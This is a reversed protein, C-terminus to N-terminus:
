SRVEPRHIRLAVVPTLRQYRGWRRRNRRETGIHGLSARPSDLEIQDFGCYWEFRGGVYLHSEVFADGELCGDHGLQPCHGARVPHEDVLGCGGPQLDFSRRRYPFPPRSHIQAWAGGSLAM